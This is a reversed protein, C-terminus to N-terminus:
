ALTLGNTLISIKLIKGFLQVMMAMLLGYVGRQGAIVVINYNDDIALGYVTQLESLNTIPNANTRSKDVKVLSLQGKVLRVLFFEGNSNIVPTLTVYLLDNNLPIDIIVPPSFPKPLTVNWPSHTKQYDSRYSNDSDHGKSLKRLGKSKNLRQPLAKVLYSVFLTLTLLLLFFKIKM